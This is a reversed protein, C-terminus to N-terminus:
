KNAQKYEVWDVFGDENVDTDHLFSDITEQLFKDDYSYGVRNENEESDDVDFNLDYLQLLGDVTSMLEEDSWIKYNEDKTEGLSSDELFPLFYPFRKSNLFGKSVKIQEGFLGM